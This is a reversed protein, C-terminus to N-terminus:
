VGDFHRRESVQSAEDVIVVDFHQHKLQYGGSGHLTALVVESGRLLDDVVRSERQRYEKRLDKLEGYIVRRERGNRTKRISAQRFCQSDAYGGSISQELPM